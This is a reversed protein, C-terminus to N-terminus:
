KKGAKKRYTKGVVKIEPGKYVIPKRHVQVEAGFQTVARKDVGLIDILNSKPCVVEVGSPIEMVIPHSYGLQLKLQSGAVTANCGTGVIQLSFKFKNSVGEIANCILSRVTGLMPFSKKNMHSKPVVKISSNAVELDIDSSVNVTNKGHKGQVELIGGSFNVKIEESFHIPNRILRSM